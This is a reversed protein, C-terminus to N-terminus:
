LELKRDNTIIPSIILWIASIGVLIYIIRTVVSLTGFIAAVFNFGSIGIIFWAIGGILLLIYAILNATRMFLDERLEIKHYIKVIIVFKLFINNKKNKKNVTYLFYPIITMNVFPVLKMKRTYSLPLTGAKWAPQTPGIGM